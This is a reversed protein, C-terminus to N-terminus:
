NIGDQSLAKKTKDDKFILTRYPFPIEIGEADFRKKISANIDAHMKYSKEPDQTWVYAKLNVSFDGFNILRVEIQPEGDLKEQPTRDDICYPHKMSEEQIIKTALDIDSDYSIGIEIWKCIKSEHITDNIITEQGIISNPIIIRNSEFNRIVTHRLTIDEVFGYELSGVKIMDGVRFPQSIVIFIGNIINAFAAQAAFGIIAVLIGAGAFLTVAVHKLTPIFSIALGIAVTWIVLSMANKLFRFRTPDVKLSDKANVLKKPILWNFIKVLIAASILISTIILVTTWNISQFDIKPM